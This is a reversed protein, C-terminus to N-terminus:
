CGPICFHSIASNKRFSFHFHLWFFLLAEAEM